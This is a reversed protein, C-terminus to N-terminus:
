MKFLINFVNGVRYNMNDIILQHGMIKNKLFLSNLIRKIKEKKSHFNYLSSNDMYFAFKPSNYINIIKLQNAPNSNFYDYLNYVKNTIPKLNLDDMRSITEAFSLYRNLQNNYNMFNSLTDVMIWNNGDWVESVTHGNLWIVRATENMATMLFVFIKSSESCIEKFPGNYDLINDLNKIKVGLSNEQMSRTVDTAFKIKKILNKEKKYQYIKKEIKDPYSVKNLIIEYFEKEPKSNFEKIETHYKVKFFPFPRTVNQLIIVILISFLYILFFFKKKSM